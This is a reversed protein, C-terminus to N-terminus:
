DHESGDGGKQPSAGERQENAQNLLVCVPWSERGDGMVLVVEWDMSWDIRSVMREASGWTASM